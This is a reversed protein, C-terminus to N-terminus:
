VHARGIEDKVVAEQAAIDQNIELNILKPDINYKEIFQNLQKFFSESVGRAIKSRIDNSSYCINCVFTYIKSLLNATEIDQVQSLEYKSLVIKAM